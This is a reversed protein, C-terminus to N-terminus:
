DVLFRKVEDAVQECLDLSQRFDHSMNEIKVVRSIKAHTLEKSKMVWVQFSKM